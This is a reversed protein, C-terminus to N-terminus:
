AKHDRSPDFWGIRDIQRPTDCIQASLEGPM